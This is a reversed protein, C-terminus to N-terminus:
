AGLRSREGALASSPESLSVIDFDFVEFFFVGFGVLVGGPPRFPLVRSAFVSEPNTFAYLIPAAGFVIM